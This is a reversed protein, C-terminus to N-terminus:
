QATQQQTSPKIPCFKQACYNKGIWFGAGLLLLVILIKIMLNKGCCNGASTCCSKQGQDQDSKKEESM